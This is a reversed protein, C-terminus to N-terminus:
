RAARARALNEAATVEELHDPNVCLRTRCLHDLQLRPTLTRGALLWSLRHAMVPIGDVSMTGYGASNPADTWMWCGDSKSHKSDFRDAVVGGPSPRGALPEGYRKWRRYHNNCFGRAITPQQCDGATCPEGKRHQRTLPGGHEPDGHRYWRMYHTPCWGRGAGRVERVDANRDCGAIGCAKM